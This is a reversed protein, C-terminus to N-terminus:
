RSPLMASGCRHRDRCIRGARESRNNLSADNAQWQQLATEKVPCSPLGILVGAVSRRGLAPQAM